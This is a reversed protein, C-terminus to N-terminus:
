VRQLTLYTMRWPRNPVVLDCSSRFTDTQSVTYSISIQSQETTEIKYQNM